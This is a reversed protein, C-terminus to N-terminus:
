AFGPSRRLAVQNLASAASFRLSECLLFNEGRKVAVKANEANFGPKM